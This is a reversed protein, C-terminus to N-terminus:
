VERGRAARAIRALKEAWASKDIAVEDAAALLAARQV